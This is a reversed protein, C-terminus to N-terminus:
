SWKWKLTNSIGPKKFRSIIYVQVALARWMDKRKLILIKATISSLEKTVKCNEKKQIVRSGLFLSSTDFNGYVSDVILDTIFRHFIDFFSHMNPSRRMMLTMFLHKPPLEDLLLCETKPDIFRWGGNILEENGNIQHNRREVEEAAKENATRARIIFYYLIM